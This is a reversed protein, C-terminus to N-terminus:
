DGSLYIIAYARGNTNGYNAEFKGAQILKQLVASAGTYNKTVKNGSKDAYTTAAKVKALSDPTFDSIVGDDVGQELWDAASSMFVGKGKELNRTNEIIATVFEISTFTKQTKAKATKM